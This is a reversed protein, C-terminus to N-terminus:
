DRNSGCGLCRMCVSFAALVSIIEFLLQFSLPALSFGWVLSITGTVMSAIRHIEDQTKWALFSIGLGILLLILSVM